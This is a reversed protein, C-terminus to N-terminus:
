ANAGIVGDRQLSALEAASLGLVDRLVAETHQGLTPATCHLPPSVGDIAYPAKPVV